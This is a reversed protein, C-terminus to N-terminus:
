RAPVVKRIAEADAVDASVGSRGLPIERRYLATAPPFVMMGAKSDVPGGPLKFGQVDWPAM